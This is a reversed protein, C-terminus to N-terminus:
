GGTRSSTSLVDLIIRVLDDPKSLQPWHSTPLEVVTLDTFRDLDALDDPYDRRWEDLQAQDFGTAVVLSRVGFRREGSLDWGERVVRAPYPVAVSEIHARLEPSLDRQETETLEDWTLEVDAGAPQDSATVAKPLADVYVALTVQDAREESAITVLTGAFSSGVLVVPGGAADIAGLVAEVHDSLTVQSRDADRSQTGPLTLATVDHGAAELLPVVEDWSSADLWFGPVLVFSAM